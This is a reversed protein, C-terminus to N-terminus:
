LLWMSMAEESCVAESCLKKVISLSVKIGTKYTLLIRTELGRPGNESLEGWQSSVSTIISMQPLSTIRAWPSSTEPGENTTGTLKPDIILCCVVAPTHCLM